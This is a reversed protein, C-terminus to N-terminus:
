SSPSRTKWNRRFTDNTEQSVEGKSTRDNESHGDTREHLVETFIADFSSAISDWTYRSQTVLEYGAGAIYKRYAEDSYLRELGNIYDYIDAQAHITNLGRTNVLPITSANIYHVGGKAWESYAATNVVMNATRTAMSEMATLGWGEGGSTSVKIDAANYVANVISIDLGEAPNINKSTYIMRDEINFAASLQAIDYGEDLLAGHYWLKVNKPKTNAWLAFGYMALDIRKRQSNRDVIQVIFDDENLNAVFKNDIMTRRTEIKGMPYFVNTDIGHPIVDLVGLYGGMYLEKAGFQTYAIGRTFKNLPEIYMPKINPGDVPTYFVLKTNKVTIARVYETLIWADNIMFVVDPKIKKILENVRSYGYYDFPQKAQPNYLKAHEQIPHPDGHYNIALVHIEWDKSLRVILNHAVQAFGTAAAADSIILLKGKM